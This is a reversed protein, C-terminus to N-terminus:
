ALQARLDAAADELLSILKNHLDDESLPLGAAKLDKHLRKVVGHPETAGLVRIEKAYADADDMHLLSAAWLGALGNRRAEIKFQFEKEYAYQTEFASERNSAASM